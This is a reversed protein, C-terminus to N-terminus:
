LHDSLWQKAQVRDQFFAVPGVQDYLPRLVSEMWGSGEVDAAIVWATAKRFRMLDLSLDSRMRLIAERSCLASDKVEILLVWPQTFDFDNLGHMADGARETLRMHWPGRASRVIMRGEVYTRIDYAADVSQDM